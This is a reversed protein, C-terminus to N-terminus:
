QIAQALSDLLAPAEALMREATAAALWDGLPGGLEITQTVLTNFGEPLLTWTCCLGAVPGFTLALALTRPADAVLVHYATQRGRQPRITVYGGKGLGRELVAWRVGPMWTKWAAVDALREWVRAPAAAIERQAQGILRM